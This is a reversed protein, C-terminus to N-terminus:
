RLSSASFPPPSGCSRLAYFPDPQTQMQLPSHKLLARPQSPSASSLSRVSLSAQGRFSASVVTPIHATEETLWSDCLSWRVTLRPAFDNCNGGLHKRAGSAQMVPKLIFNIQFWTKYGSMWRGSRRRVAPLTFHLLCIYKRNSAM